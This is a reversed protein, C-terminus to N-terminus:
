SKLFKLMIDFDTDTTANAQFLLKFSECPLFLETLTNTVLNKGSYIDDEFYFMIFKNQSLNSEKLLYVLKNFCNAIFPIALEHWTAIREIGFHIEKSTNATVTFSKEWQFSVLDKKPISLM